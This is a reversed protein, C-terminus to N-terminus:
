EVSGLFFLSLNHNIQNLVNRCTEQDELSIEALIEDIFNGFIELVGNVLSAGKDTIRIIFARRDNPDPQREIFQKLALRDLIRTMNAPTKSNLECLNRQGVAGGELSVIKLAHFQELTLDFPKLVIDAHGQLGLSTQYILRPLSNEDCKTLKAM